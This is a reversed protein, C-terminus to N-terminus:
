IMHQGKRAMGYIMYTIAFSDMIYQILNDPSNFYAFKKVSDLFVCASLLIRYSNTGIILLGHLMEMIHQM